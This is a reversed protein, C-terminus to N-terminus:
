NKLLRILTPYHSIHLLDEFVKLGGEYPNIERGQRMLPELSM